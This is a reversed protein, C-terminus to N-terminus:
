AVVRDEDRGVIRRHNQLCKTKDGLNFLNSRHRQSRSKNRKKECFHSANNTFGFRILAAGMRM